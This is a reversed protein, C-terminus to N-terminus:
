VTCVDLIVRVLISIVARNPWPLMDHAYNGLFGEGWFCFCFIGCVRKDQSPLICLYTITTYLKHAFGRILQNFSPNVLELQFDCSDLIYSSESCATGLNLWIPNPTALVKHNWSFINLPQAANSFVKKKNPESNVKNNQVLPHSTCIIKGDLVHQLPM